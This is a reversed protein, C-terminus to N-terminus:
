RLEYQTSWPSNPIVGGPVDLNGEWRFNGSSAISAYNWWEEHVYLRNHRVQSHLIGYRLIHRINITTQIMVGLSRRVYNM